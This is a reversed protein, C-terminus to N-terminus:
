YANSKWIVKSFLKELLLVIKLKWQYEIQENIKPLSSKSFYQIKRHMFSKGNIDIKYEYGCYLTIIQMNRKLTIRPM